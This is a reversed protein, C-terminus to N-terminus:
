TAPNSDLRNILFHQCEPCYYNKSDEDIVWNTRKAHHFSSSDGCLHCYILQYNSIKVNSLNQLKM